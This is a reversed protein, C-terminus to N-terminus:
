ENKGSAWRIANGLLARYGPNEYAKGDHGLILYCTCAKDYSGAWGIAKESTKEDTTLVVHSEPRVTYRCYTEDHIKFDKVGKAIPHKPDEVHVTFDVDHQYGSTKHTVGGAETDKLYFKGGAIKEFEPWDQWAALAHHTTVVGVGKALLAKFNEARKPTMKQGMNYLVIVDYKWGAIDEFLESEDKQPAHTCAIGELSELAALFPKEEFDHGGTVVVARIKKGPAEAPAAAEAATSATRVAQRASPAAAKAPADARGAAWRVANTVLARYGPNAYVQGDHGNILYCTRAKAYTGAWGIAKDSSPEDTTLIVHSEPRVSYHCYTEDVVQFDQVGKTIPHAPDEVHVKYTVGNKAGSAAHKVGGTEMEKMYFRGGAIKEFEPWDLYAALAHHLTVVGVGKELLALLNKQRKESIKQTMNYFVIVDYKWASTDEFIESDDKQPAHTFAVGEMAEFMALFAKEDFGHGGSVIVVNIKGGAAEGATAPAALLLAAALALAAPAAMRMLRSM